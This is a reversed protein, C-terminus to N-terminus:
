GLYVIYATVYIDKMNQAYLTFYLNKPAFFSLNLYSAGWYGSDGSTALYMDPDTSDLRTIGVMSTVCLAGREKTEYGRIMYYTGLIQDSTLNSPSYTDLDDRLGNLPGVSKFNTIEDFPGYSKIKTFMIQPANMLDAYQGTKAVKSLRVTGKLEEKESATPTVYNSTALFVKPSYVCAPSNTGQQVYLQNYNTTNYSTTDGKVLLLGADVKGEASIAWETTALPANLSDCTVTSATVSKVNIEADSSLTIDYLDDKIKLSDIKKNAM